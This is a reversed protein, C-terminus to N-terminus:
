NMLNQKKFKGHASSSISFNQKVVFDLTYNPNFYNWIIRKFLLVEFFYVYLFSFSNSHYAIKFIKGNM